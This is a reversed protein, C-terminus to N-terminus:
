ASVVVRIKTAVLELSQAIHKGEVVVARGVLWSLPRGEPVGRLRAAQAHVAYISGDAVVTLDADVAGVVSGVIRVNLLRYTVRVTRAHVTSRDREWTGQVRVTMGAAVNALLPPLNKVHMSTEPGLVARQLGYASSHFQISAAATDVAVVKGSFTGSHPFMSLDRVRVASVSGDPWVTGEVEVADGVAVEAFLLPLGNKRLLVAGSTEADYVRGAATRLQLRQFVIRQVVGRIVRDM